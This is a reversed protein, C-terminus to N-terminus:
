GLRTRADMGDRTAAEPLVFPRGGHTTVSWGGGFVARVLEQEIVEPPAGSRAVRGAALVVVRDALAALNLEHVVALVALGRESALRRLLDITALQHAPDLHVTPEDLLLVPTEQALAMALVVRQREGGSIADVRREALGDLDLTGLARAIAAEDDHSGRGLADLRATRGLAVLERVTFPFLTEIAQPVVAVRRAIEARSLAAIPDGAIRVAGGAPRLLGACVKLLTSKGAGNPGVVAVIEGADIVLDCGRLVERGGYGAVIGRAELLTM